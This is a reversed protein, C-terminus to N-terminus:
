ANVCFSGRARPPIRGRKRPAHERADALVDPSVREDTVVLLAAHILTTINDGFGMGFREAARELSDRSIHSSVRQVDKARVPHAM